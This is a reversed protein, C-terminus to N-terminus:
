VNAVEIPPPAMQYVSVLYLCAHHKKCNLVMCPAICTRQTREKKLKMPYIVNAPCQWDFTFALAIFIFSSAIHSIMSQQTIPNMHARRATVYTSQIPVSDVRLTCHINVEAHCYICKYNLCSVQVADINSSVLSFSATPRAVGLRVPAILSNATECLEEIAINILAQFVRKCKM